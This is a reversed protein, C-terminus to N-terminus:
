LIAGLLSMMAVGVLFAGLYPFWFGNESRQRATEPVLDITIVSMFIGASIALLWGEIAFATLWLTIAIGILITASAIFNRLLASRHGLGAKRLVVYESIEQVFEHIIIAGATMWGFSVSVGFALALIIGDTINHIGDAVLIKQGELQDHHHDNDAHHHHFFPILRFGLISATFSATIVLLGLEVGLTELSETILNYTLYTFVGAAFSVLVAIHKTISKALFSTSFIVGVISTLM